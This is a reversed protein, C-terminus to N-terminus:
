RAFLKIIHMEIARGGERGGERQDLDRSRNLDSENRHMVRAARKAWLMGKKANRQPFHLCNKEERSYASPVSYLVKNLLM